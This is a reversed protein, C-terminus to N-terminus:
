QNWYGFGFPDISQAWDQYTQDGGSAAASAGGLTDAWTFEPENIVPPVYGGGAGPYGGGATNYQAASAVPRYAGGGGGGGGGGRAGLAAYKFALDADAQRAQEALAAQQHATQSYVGPTVLLNEMGYIPASPNRAYAATLEKQAEAERSAIDMGLARYYAASLAPTDVGFGRGGFSEAMSTALMQQTAPDVEGRLGSAINESSLRELEAAQPIRSVNAAQQAARNTANVLDAIQVNYPSAALNSRGTNMGLNYAASDGSPTYAARTGATSGTKTGWIDSKWWDTPNGVANFAPEYAM